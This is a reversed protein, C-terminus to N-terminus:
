ENNDGGPVDSINELDLELTKVFDEDSLIKINEFELEGPTIEKDIDCVKGHVIIEM